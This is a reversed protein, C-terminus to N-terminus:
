EKSAVTEAPAALAAKAQARRRYFLIAADGMLQSAASVTTSGTLLAYYSKMDLTRTLLPTCAVLGSAAVV